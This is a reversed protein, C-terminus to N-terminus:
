SSAVSPAGRLSGLACHLVDRFVASSTPVVSPEDIKMSIVEFLDSTFVIGMEWGSVNGLFSQRPVRKPTVSLMMNGEDTRQAEAVLKFVEDEAAAEAIMVPTVEKIGTVRVDAPGTPVKLVANAIIILKNATDHGDVDLSPEAEAIGLRQAEALADEFSRGAGMEALIYNTTSNFVGEVRSFQTTTLALDMTGLNVVPLGGCVTASFRLRPCFPAAVLGQPDSGDVTASALGVLESFAAVLPAKNALVAHKGATLATRVAELGIGGGHAFPAGDVLIDYQDSQLFGKLDDTGNCSRSGPFTSVVNGAAKHSLLAEFNLGDPATSISGGKSDWVATVILRVGYADKIAGERGAIVKLLTTNVSGFGLLALRVENMM